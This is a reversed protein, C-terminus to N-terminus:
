EASHSDPSSVYDLITAVGSSWGVLFSHEARVKLLFAYLDAAHQEYTNGTDTRTTDGQSRPDFAIARFGRASFYPLQEQWVEAPMTWGTIFVIIRDGSGAELYHIKIDGIDVKRDNWRDNAISVVPFLTCFFLLILNRGMGPFM